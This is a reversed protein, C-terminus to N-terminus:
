MGSSNFEPFALEWITQSQPMGLDPHLSPMQIKPSPIPSKGNPFEFNSNQPASTAKLTIFTHLFSGLLKRRSGQLNETPFVVAHKICTYM